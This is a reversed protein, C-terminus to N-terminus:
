TERCTTAFNNVNSYDTNVKTAFSIDSPIALLDLILDHMTVQETKGLENEIIYTPEM